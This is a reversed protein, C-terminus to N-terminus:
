HGHEGGFSAKELEAKIVFSGQAVYTEGAGVGSLIEVFESNTRGLKIPRPEFKEGEKVFVVEGDEYTQIASKPVRVDAKDQAVEVNAKVFLGPKLRGKASDTIVRATATRTEESVHPTVFAIKGEIPDGDGIDISVTQGPRVLAMDRPYLTVDVWVTTPDAILFSEKDPAVAEGLSLHREIVIGAIPARVEYRTLDANDASALTEVYTKPFGLALLKQESAQLAIEAEALAARTDLYDKESSIKKQWLAEERVFTDKALNRRQLDALYAAKLEALERSNLVAMVEDEKVVQGQSVRVDTIVGAVRPAVHVQRDGSFKIEAPRALDLAIAGEGAVAVEIGFEKMQSENLAVGEGHGEEGEKAAGEAPEPAEEGHGKEAGNSHQHADSETARAVRAGGAPDEDGQPAPKSEAPGLVPRAMEVALSTWEKLAPAERFHWAILAVSAIAAAILLILRM